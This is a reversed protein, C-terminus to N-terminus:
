GFVLCCLCAMDSAIFASNCLFFLKCLPSHFCIITSDNSASIPEATAKDTTTVPITSAILRLTRLGLRHLENILALVVKNNFSWEREGDPTRKVATHLGHGADVAILKSM